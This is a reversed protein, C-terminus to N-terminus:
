PVANQVFCSMGTRSIYRSSTVGVGNMAVHTHTKLLVGTLSKVQDNEFYLVNVMMSPTLLSDNSNEWNFAIVSGNRRALKSAQSFPNATIPNNALQVNNLGNPRAVSVFENTNNGRAVVTKNDKTLAFGEMVKSADTFRVGNGYNLQQPTSDGRFQVDGTALIVLHDGDLRYTRELNSFRNQPLLIVTASKVAQSYRTTDYCPYIYWIKNRLYCGLGASYIGGCREQVYEPVDLLKTGHPIAIHDRVNQNSAPVMDVGKVKLDEDVKVNQSFQTMAAKIFDEPKIQLWRGGVSAMRLQELSKDILQFSVELLQTLDLAEQTVNTRANAQIMPNGQDDLTAQYRMAAVTQTNDSADSTESLPYQFLTIDLSDQYPYIQTAFTGAPILVRVRLDDTYNLEFDSVTDVEIVKLVPFDLRLQNVHIIAHWTFHVPNSGSQLVRLVEPYLSSSDLEM